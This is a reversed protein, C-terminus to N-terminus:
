CKRHMFKFLKRCVKDLELQWSENEQYALPGENEDVNELVLERINDGSYTDSVAKEVLYGGLRHLAARYRNKTSKSKGDINGDNWFEVFLDVLGQSIEKERAFDVGVQWDKIWQQDPKM